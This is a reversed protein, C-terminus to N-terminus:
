AHQLSQLEGYVSTGILDENKQMYDWATKGDLDKAHVDIGSDILTKILKVKKHYLMAVMLATRGKYDKGNINAGHFIMGKAIGNAISDDGCWACVTNLIPENDRTWENIDIVYPLQLIVEKAERARTCLAVMDCTKLGEVNRADVIWSRYDNTDPHKIMHTVKGIYLYYADCLQQRTGVFSLHTERNMFRYVTNQNMEDIEDVTLIEILGKTVLDEATIGASLTRNKHLQDRLEGNFAWSHLFERSRPNYFKDTGSVKVYDNLWQATKRDINM